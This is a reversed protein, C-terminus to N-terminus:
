FSSHVAKHSFSVMVTINYPAKGEEWTFLAEGCENVSDSSVNFNFAATLHALLAAALFAARFM